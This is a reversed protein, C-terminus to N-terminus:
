GKRAAISLGFLVVLFAVFLWAVRKVDVGVGIRM